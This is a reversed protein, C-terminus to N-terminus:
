LYNLLTKESKALRPLCILKYLFGILDLLCLIDFALNIASDSLVVQSRILSKRVEELSLLSEMESCWVQGPTVSGNQRFVPM